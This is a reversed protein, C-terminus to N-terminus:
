DELRGDEIGVALPTGDFVQVHKGDVAILRHGDPTFTLSNIGYLRPLALLESGTFTNWVRLREDDATVVRSSDPSFAICTVPGVLGSLTRKEVGTEADFINVRTEEGRPPFGRYRVGAGAAVLKGDASFAVPEGIGIVSASWLKRGTAADWLCLQGNVGTAGDGGVRTFSEGVAALRRGDPDFVVRYVRETNGDLDHLL